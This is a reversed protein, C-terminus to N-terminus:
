RWWRNAWAARARAWRSSRKSMRCHRGGPAGSANGGAAQPKAASQADGETKQVDGGVLEVTVNKVHDGMAKVAAKAAAAIAKQAADDDDDITLKVSVFGDCAAVARVYGLTVIDRDLAPDSVTRLTDVVQEKTIDMPRIGKPYLPAADYRGRHDAVFSTETGLEVAM